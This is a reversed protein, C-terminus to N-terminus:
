FAGADFSFSDFHLSNLRTEFSIDQGPYANEDSRRPVRGPAARRRPSDYDEESDWGDDIPAQPPAPDDVHDPNAEAQQPEPMPQTNGSFISQLSGFSFKRRHGGLSFTPSSPRAPEDKLLQLAPTSASAGRSYPLTRFGGSHPPPPSFGFGITDPAGPGVLESESGGRGFVNTLPQSNRKKLRPTSTHTPNFVDKSKARRKDVTSSSQTLTPVEAKVTPQENEKAPFVQDLAPRRPAKRVNKISRLAQAARSRLTLTKSRRITPVTGHAYAVDLMGEGRRVKMVEVIDDDDKEKPRKPSEPIPALGPPNATRPLTSHSTSGRRPMVVASDTQSRHFAPAHEATPHVTQAWDDLESQQLEMEPTAFIVEAEAVEQNVDFACWPMAEDEPPHVLVTPMGFAPSSASLLPPAVLGHEHTFPLSHTRHM